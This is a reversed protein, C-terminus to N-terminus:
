DKIEERYASPIVGLVSFYSIIWRHNIVAREGGNFYGLLM